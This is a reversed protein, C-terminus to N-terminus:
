LLLFLAEVQFTIVAGRGDPGSRLSAHSPLRFGLLKTAPRTWRMWSDFVIAANSFNEAGAGESRERSCLRSPEVARGESRLHVRSQMLQNRTRDM